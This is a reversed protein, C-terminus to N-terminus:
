KKPFERLLYVFVAINILFIVVKLFSFKHILEFIEAPISIGVVGLVLWRAWAKEYWLGVAEIATVVAYVGAAVGGFLVKKTSLNLLKELLLAILGQKGALVLSEWLEELDPQHKVSVLLAISVITLLTATFIKYIVIAVLGSPRKSM